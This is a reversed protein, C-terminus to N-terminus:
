KVLYLHFSGDKDQSDLVRKRNWLALSVLTLSVSMAEAGLLHRQRQPALHRAGMSNHLAIVLPTSSFNLSSSLHIVPFRALIPPNLFVEQIFLCKLDLAHTPISYKSTLPSLLLMGPRPCLAQLSSGSTARSVSLLRMHNSVLWGPFAAFVLVPSSHQPQKQCAWTLFKINQRWSLLFINFFKWYSRFLVPKIIVVSQWEHPCYLFILVLGAIM